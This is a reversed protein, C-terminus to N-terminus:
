CGHYGPNLEWCQGFSFSVLFWSYSSTVGV